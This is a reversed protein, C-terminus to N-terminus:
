YREHVQKQNFTLTTWFINRHEKQGVGLRNYLIKVATAKCLM